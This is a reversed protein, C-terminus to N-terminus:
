WAQPDELYEEAVILLQELMVTCDETQHQHHWWKCFAGVAPPM